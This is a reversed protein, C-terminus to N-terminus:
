SQRNHSLVGSTARVQYPESPNQTTATIDSVTRGPMTEWPERRVEDGRTVAAPNKKAWVLAHAYGLNQFRAGPFISGYRREFAQRSLYRDSALHDLWAASTRFKLLWGAHRAGVRAIDSPVDRLAGLVHVWRPPTPRAAVNDILIAKGGPRVLGRLHLLAADLDPVHHLTTSSFVLDFGANDTLFVLDMVVFRVNPSSRQRRAIDILPESIDLGVVDDFLEALVQTHRGPGCGADLVRGGHAPLQTLLWRLVRPPELGAFRHYDAAFRDFSQRNSV